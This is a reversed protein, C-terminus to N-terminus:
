FKFILKVFSATYTQFIGDSHIFCVTLLHYSISENISISHTHIAQNEHTINALSRTFFPITLRPYLLKVFVSSCSRMFIPPGTIKSIPTPIAIIYKKAIM